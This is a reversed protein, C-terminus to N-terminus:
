DALNVLGKTQRDLRVSEVFHPMAEECKGQQKLAYGQQLQARAAAPDSTDASAITCAFLIFGCPLSTTIRMTVTLAEHPDRGARDSSHLPRTGSRSVAAGPGDKCATARAKYPHPLFADRSRREPGAPRM